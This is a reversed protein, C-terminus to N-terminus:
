AHHKFQNRFWLELGFRVIFLLSFFVALVLSWGALDPSWVPSAFDFKYLSDPIPNAPQGSPHEDIYRQICGLRGRGYFSAPETRECYAQADAYTTNNNAASNRELEAQVLREYRYKLQIPPYASTSGALSTNMHGHIHSRLERLAVEVDGNQEDVKLVKDRLRIATLSNQRLAFVAMVGFLVAIILFHWYHVKRIYTWVHHLRRKNM